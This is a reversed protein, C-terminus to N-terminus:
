ILTSTDVNASSNMNISISVGGSNNISTGAGANASAKAKTNSSKESSCPIQGLHPFHLNHLTVPQSHPKLTAFKSNETM